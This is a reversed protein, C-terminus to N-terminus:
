ALASGHVIDSRLPAVTDIVLTITEPPVSSAELVAVLHAVTRDFMDDTIHLGAHATGMDRGAYVDQSGLAASLFVTMHRRLRAVDIEAFVPAVQDDELLRAYLGEVVTAIADRGGLHDYLTQDMTHEEQDAGHDGLLPRCVFKTSGLTPFRGNAAFSDVRGTGV